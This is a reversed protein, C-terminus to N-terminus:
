SAVFDGARMTKKKKVLSSEKLVNRLQLMLFVFKHVQFLVSHVM